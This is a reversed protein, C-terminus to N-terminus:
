RRAVRYVHETSSSLLNESSALSICPVYWMWAGVVAWFFPWPNLEIYFARPGDKELSRM